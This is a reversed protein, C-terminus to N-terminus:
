SGLLGYMCEGQIGDREQDKLRLAPTTPRFIGKGGDSYLGTEAMRDRRHDNGVVYNKGGVGGLAGTSGKGNALGLYAGSRTVWRPGEPGEVVYPMRDKMAPTANSVFLDHPLWAIDIHCDASICRYEM